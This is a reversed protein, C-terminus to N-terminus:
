GGAARLSPHASPRPPELVSQVGPARELRCRPAWPGLRSGTVEECQRGGGWCGPAEGLPGYLCKEERRRGWRPQPLEGKRGGELMRQTQHRSGVGLGWCPLARTGQRMLRLEQEGNHGSKEFSGLDKVCAHTLRVFGFLPCTLLCAGVAVKSMFGKWCGGQGQTGRCCERERAGSVRRHSRPRATCAPSPGTRSWLSPRSVGLGTSGPRSTWRDVSTPVWHEWFEMTQGPGEAPLVSKSDSVRYAPARPILLRCRGLGHKRAELSECTVTEKVKVGPCSRHSQVAPTYGPRHSTLSGGKQGQEM